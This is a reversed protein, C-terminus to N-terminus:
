KPFKDPNINLDFEFDKIISDINPVNNDLDIIHRKSQQIYKYGDKTIIKSNLLHKYENYYAKHCLVLVNKKEKQVYSLNIFHNSGWTLIIATSEFLDRIKLEELKRNVQLYGNKEILNIIENNFGKYPTLNTIDNNLKINYTKKLKHKDYPIILKLIKSIRNSKVRLNCLNLKKFKFIINKNVNLMKVKCNFIRSIFSIYNLYDNMKSKFNDSLSIFYYTNKSEYFEISISKKLFDISHGGINIDEIICLNIEEEFIKYKKPLDIFHFGDYIKINKRRNYYKNEQHASFSYINIDDFVICSLLNEYFFINVNELKLINSKDNVVITKKM